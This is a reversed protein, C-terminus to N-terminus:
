KISYFVCTNDSNQQESGEKWKSLAGNLSWPSGEEQLCAIMAVDRHIEETEYGEAM